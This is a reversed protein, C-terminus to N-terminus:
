QNGDQWIVEAGRRRVEDDVGAKTDFELAPREGDDRPRIFASLFFTGDKNWAYLQRTM